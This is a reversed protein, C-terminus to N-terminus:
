LLGADSLAARAAARTEEVAGGTNIRRTVRATDEGPAEWRERMARYTAWDADSADGRRAALRARLADEPAECLLMLAPVRWARAALLLERRHAERVFTGDVVVRRGEFLHAAAQERCAAYTRATWEPTYIGRDVDARASSLPALGALGKRVVDTSVLQWGLEQALWRALWSKGSGPLGATMVVAPREPPDCLVGMALLFYARARERFREREVAPIEAGRSAFGDVKGRVVARYATYFPQLARGAEDGLALFYADSFAAALDPRGRYRLDMDLFAMDSVPDAYRFRENFEICDVVVLGDGATGERLAYVHKLHLDGHTDRPVGARARAEMLPRLDTLAAETRRELVELVRASLTDGVFPRLQAFNERANGAVTDFGGWRSVEAGSAAAAHFAALRGALARLADSDLVGRELLAEFTREDPLRVMRVAFELAPGPGDVLVGDGAATIPVVDLYVGPALRRNLTVEQRCFHRRRELTTFDLFGLDVPKKVKYARDGALFVASIHTQVVSVTEVPHPYAQPRSMAQILAQLEM